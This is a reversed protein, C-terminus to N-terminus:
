SRFISKLVSALRLGGFLLQHQIIEKNRKIYKGNIEQGKFDYASVLNERSEKMWGLINIRKIEALQEKTYNSTNAWETGEHLIYGEVIDSDWVRHLNSSSAAFFVMVSNGGRDSAYGNHLPQHLDGILHILIKLDVEIHEKTYKNREKLEAIVRNLEGVINKTSDPNYQEGKELNIYHFPRLSDNSPDSKIEDMWVSAEEITTAGLYSALSDKVAKPLQSYAIKAVLKHGVAGWAFTQAPLYIAILLILSVRLVKM